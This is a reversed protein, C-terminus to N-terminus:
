LGSKASSPTTKVFPVNAPTMLRAVDRFIANAVGPFPTDSQLDVWATVTVGTKPFYYTATNYGPLGGTYGFWGASCGLGLGFSLNGEGTWICNMRERQTKASNTKGTVYLKVWRNMDFMDSIMAGAAWMLSVPITNSVDQWNKNAGLAYGHAWPSPMAMTTPFSTNTLDYPIIIRKEIQHEITDHTVAEVILGLILYNTNSYNYAKGPAFNPKHEVAWKILTHPDWKSDPTVTTGSGLQPVDYAEFLGSRMECAQRVTIHDGNPIKVGINFKSLPDDLSLKGEDVLQLLVTVVFVKTNSGIRFHDNLRMPAKTKLDEYGFGHLYSHGNGDLVGVLVGPVPTKGGYVIRDHEVAAAIKARIGPNSVDTAAAPAAAVAIVAPALACAFLRRCAAAFRVSSM